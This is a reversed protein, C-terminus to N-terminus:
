ITFIRVSLRLTPGVPPSHQFAFPQWGSKLNILKKPSWRKNQLYLYSYMEYYDAHLEWCARWGAVQMKRGLAQPSGPAGLGCQQGQALANLVHLQEIDVGNIHHCTTWTCLWFLFSTCFTQFPWKHVVGCQGM